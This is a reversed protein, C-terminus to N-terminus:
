GLLFQVIHGFVGTRALGRVRRAATRGTLAGQYHCDCLLTHAEDDSLGFFTQADGLTDGALGEARLVPDAFALAIPSGDSRLRRREPGAYFEVWRLAELPRSGMQGLLDAWRRLRQERTMPPRAEAVAAHARVQDLRQYEM